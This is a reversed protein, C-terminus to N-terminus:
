QQTKASWIVTNYRDYIRLSGDDELRLVVGGKNYSNSHWLPTQNPDYLVLNGDAQFICNKVNKGHTWTAWTYSADKKYLVLNGDQQMILEYTGNTSKLSSGIALNEGANLHNKADSLSTSGIFQPIQDITIGKALIKKSAGLLYIYPTKSINYLTSAKREPDELMVWANSVMAYLDREDWTAPRRGSNIGVFKVSSYTSYNDSFSKFIKKLEDRSNKDDWFVMATYSAKFAHLDQLQGNFDVLHFNPATEGCTLPSLTRARECILNLQNPEIWDPKSAPYKPNCYCTEAIHVYVKDMCVINSKAYHNLLTTVFYQYTEEVQLSRTLIADVAKIITDPHNVTLDLYQFCKKHLMNSRLLRADSFDVQDFFHAM